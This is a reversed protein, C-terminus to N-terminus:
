HHAHDEVICVVDIKAVVLDLVIVVGREVLTREEPKDRVVDVIYVVDYLEAMCAIGSKRLEFERDAKKYIGRAVFFIGLSFLWCLIMICMLWFLPGQNFPAYNYYEVKYNSLDIHDTYYFIMGVVVEDDARLPMEKFKENPYYVVSDGAKLPILLDSGDMVYDLEMTDLDYDALNVVQVHEDSTGTNQHIEVTGNWFQNIYCDDVINITLKWSKVYNHTYNHITGDYIIGFTGMEVKEWSSTADGRPHIDMTVEKTNEGGEGAEGSADSSADGTEDFVDSGLGTIEHPTNNYISNTAYQLGGFLVAAIAFGILYFKIRRNRKLKM